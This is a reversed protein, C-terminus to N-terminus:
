ATLHRASLGFRALAEKIFQMWIPDPIWIDRMLEFASEQSWNLRIARFLGLFASVRKNAACHLFIRRTGNSEMADFFIELDKMTPQSFDVPIHVYSMGLSEVLRREDPLSYEPNDHLALNIVVEYGAGAVAALEEESPQGATALDKGAPRFDRIRELDGIDM